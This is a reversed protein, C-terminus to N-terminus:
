PKTQAPAITVTARIVADNPLLTVTFADVGTFAPDPTYDIRTSDGVKHILVKGHQPVATLLGADFPAGEPQTVTIACWGGDNGVTMAADVPKGRAPLVKPVTCTKAGGTVDAAFLRPGPKAAQPPKPNDCGQLLAATMTMALLLGLHRPNTM